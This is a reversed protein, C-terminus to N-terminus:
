ARSWQLLEEATLVDGDMIHGLTALERAVMTAPLPDLGLDRVRTPDSLLEGPPGGGAVRGGELIVVHDAAAAEELFHTVHIIGVGRERLDAYLKLVGAQSRVDLMSTSEDSILFSPEMAVAGAVAVLQKQGQSLQQPQRRAIDLIGALGLAEDVRKRIVAPALGLNEPGFAVEEEVTSGVMRTDPAQFVIAVQKRIEPANGPRSTDLGCSLVRGKGPTLLGNLCLALTSKGSGNRGLVVYFRGQRFRQSVNDLAPEPMRPYTFSLDEVVIQHPNGHM